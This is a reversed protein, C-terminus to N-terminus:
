RRTLFGKLTSTLFEALTKGLFHWHALASEVSQRHLDHISRNAATERGAQIRTVIDGDLQVVTQMVVTEVGIEWVKRLTILEDPTLPLEAEETTDRSLTQEALLTRIPERRLVSKIQDCNRYVRRLIPGTADEVVWEHEIAHRWVAEAEVARERLEDFTAEVVVDGVSEVRLPRRLKGDPDTNRHPSTSHPQATGPQPENSPRVQIPTEEPNWHKKVTNAVSCLFKDYDGIIDLLAHIPTPMKRATM